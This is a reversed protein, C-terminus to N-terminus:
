APQLPQIAEFFALIRRMSAELMGRENGAFEISTVEEGWSSYIRCVREIHDSDAALDLARADFAASMEPDLLLWLRGPSTVGRGGADLHGACSQLTCIGPIANLRDCWRFMEPDPYGAGGPAGDGLSTGSGKCAEWGALAERKRAPSLHRDQRATGDQDHPQM